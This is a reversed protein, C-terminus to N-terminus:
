SAKAITLTTVQSLGDVSVLVQLTTDFTKQVFNHTWTVTGKADTKLEGSPVTLTFVTAPSTSPDNGFQVATFTVPIGALGGTTRTPAVTASATLTAYGGSAPTVAATLTLAGNTNSNGCAALSIMLLLAATILLFNRTHM